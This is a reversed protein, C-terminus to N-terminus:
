RAPLRPLRTTREHRSRTLRSRCLALGGGLPSHIPFDEDSPRAAAGGDTSSRPPPRPGGRIGRLPGSSVIEALRLRITFTRTSPPRTSSDSARQRQRQRRTRHRVYSVSVLAHKPVSGHQPLRLEFVRFLLDPEPDTAQQRCQRPPGSSNERTRARRIASASDTMVRLQEPIGVLRGNKQIYGIAGMALARQAVESTDGFGSLMAVNVTPHEQRILALAQLGDMVPMAVDLLVLDPQTERVVALAREGNEAEAVVRFHGSRELTLRLLARLDELDDVLVVRITAPVDTPSM